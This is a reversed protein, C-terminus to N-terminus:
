RKIFKGFQTEGAPNRLQMYYYGPLLSSIDVQGSDDTLLVNIVPVGAATFIIVEKAVQNPSIIYIFGQAPNPYVNVYEYGAEPHSLIILDEGDCDEDIGNNPIEEAGPYIDDNEDDCDVDDPFGDEDGDIVPEYIFHRTVNTAVPLNYDFFIDARNFIEEAPKSEPRSQIRFSVYGQSGILDTTSDPLIVPDFLFTLNGYADLQYAYDHNSSVPTLTSWILSTDLKDQIRVIFATDNGTNQFRVTYDIWEGPLIADPELDNHTVALKDNPDVACRIPTKFLYSTNITSDEHNQYSFSAFVNLDQGEFSEDPMTATFQLHVEQSLGVSDLYWYMTDNVIQDPITAFAFGTVAPTIFVKLTGALTDCGVNGIVADVFSRTNCRVIGSAASISAKIFDGTKGMRFDNGASGSQNDVTLVPESVVDFCADGSTSIQYVGPKTYFSYTGDEKSIATLGEPELLVRHRSRPKDEADFNGSDNVDYYLRGHISPRDSYNEFWGIEAVGKGVVFEDDGDNDFDTMLYEDYQGCYYNDFQLYSTLFGNGDNYLIRGITNLVIDPDGDQDV